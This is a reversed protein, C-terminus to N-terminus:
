IVTIAFRGEYVKLRGSGVKQNRVVLNVLDTLEYESKYIAGPQALEIINEPSLTIEPFQISLRTTGDPQAASFVAGTQTEFGLYQDILVLKAPLWNAGDSYLTVRDTVAQDLDIDTGSKLYQALMTPPITLHALEIQIKKSKSPLKSNAILQRRWLGDFRKVLKSGLALTLHINTGNSSFVLKIGANAHVAHIKLKNEFKVQAIEGGGWAIALSHMFRRALYEILISRCIPKSGPIFLNTIHEASVEDTMIALPEGDVSGVFSYDKNLENLVIPTIEVSKLTTGLAHALPLWQASFGPFWREPRSQLFGLSLEYKENTVKELQEEPKWALLAQSNDGIQNDTQGALSM